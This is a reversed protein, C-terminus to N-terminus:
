KKAFKQMFEILADVGAEPMANYISARIGGAIRHGRLNELGAASAESLFKELLSEDHLNIIVNMRSRCEPHIRNAYFGNSNDIYDYLKKAKRQNVEDFHAVGGQRKMWAFVLGSFYWSYTPPTNYFSHHEAHTQYKYLTPTKPLPEQVLDERIIVVTIGAHGINKQAGAYIVGYKSVDIPRSLIMSSMDAVLPVNGTEPVWNFEVGDITENPTYHVYAADQRLKWHEQHPIYALHDRHELYAAVNVDGYRKAEDIAKKSWIGTDIYDAKGKQGLLNIPVMAFQASAGGPIFMVHYNKPISMLERLDAEAQETVEKFEPGRHGLEMISMGTGHWDLMEAQSQLLVEEPLMAPGASFNFVKRM